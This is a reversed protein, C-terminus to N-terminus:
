RRRWFACADEYSVARLQPENSSDCERIDNLDFTFWRCETGFVKHTSDMGSSTTFLHTGCSRIVYVFSEPSLRQLIAFDEALDIHYSELIGGVKQLIARMAYWAAKNTVFSPLPKSLLTEKNPVTYNPKNGCIERAQRFLEKEEQSLNYNKTANMRDSIIQIEADLRSELEAQLQQTRTM